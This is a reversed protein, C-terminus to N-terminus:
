DSSVTSLSSSAAGAYSSSSSRVLSSVGNVAGTFATPNNGAFRGVEAVTHVLNPANTPQSYTLYQLAQILTGFNFMPGHGEKNESIYDSGSKSIIKSRASPSLNFKKIPTQKEQWWNNENVEQVIEVPKKNNIYENIKPM